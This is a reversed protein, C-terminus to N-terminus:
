AAHAYFDGESPQAANGTPLWVWHYNGAMPPTYELYFKGLAYRVLINDVGYIYTVSTGNPLDIRIALASPDAFPDNIDPVKTVDAPQHWEGFIRTRSGAFIKLEVTM